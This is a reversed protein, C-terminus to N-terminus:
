LKLAAVDDLLENAEEMAASVPADQAVARSAEPSIQQLMRALADRTDRANVQLMPDRSPDTNGVLAQLSERVKVVSSKLGSLEASTRNAITDEMSPAAAPPAPSASSAGLVPPAPDAGSAALRDQLPGPLLAQVNEPLLPKVVALLDGEIRVGREVLTALIAAIEQVIFSQKQDQTLSSSAVQSLRDGHFQLAEGLELLSSALGLTARPGLAIVDLPSSLWKSLSASGAAPAPVSATTALQTTVETGQSYRCAVRSSHRRRFPTSRICAVKHNTGATAHQSERVRKRGWRNSVGNTLSAVASRLQM